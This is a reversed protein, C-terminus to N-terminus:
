HCSGVTVQNPNFHPGGKRRRSSSGLPAIGVLTSMLALCGRYAMRWPEGVLTSVELDLDLDLDLGRDNPATLPLFDKSQYRTDLM